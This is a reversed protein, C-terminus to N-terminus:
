NYMKVKKGLGRTRFYKVYKKLMNKPVKITVKKSIGKFAGAAIRKETIMTTKVELAKLKTCKIFM